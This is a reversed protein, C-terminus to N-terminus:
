SSQSKVDPIRFPTHYQGGWCKSRTVETPTKNTIGSVRPFSTIQKTEHWSRGTEVQFSLTMGQHSSTRVLELTMSWEQPTVQSPGVLHVIYILKSLMAPSYCTVHHLSSKIEGEYTSPNTVKSVWPHITLISITWSVSNTVYLHEESLTM